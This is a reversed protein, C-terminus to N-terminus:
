SIFSLLTIQETMSEEPKQYATFIATANVKIVLELVDKLDAESNSLSFNEILFSKGLDTMKKFDINKFNKTNLYIIEESHAKLITKALTSKGCGPPGILFLPRHKLAEPIQFFVKGEKLTPNNNM